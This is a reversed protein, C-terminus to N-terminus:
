FYWGLALSFEVNNTEISDGFVDMDFVHNRLDANVSFADMFLLRYGFGYNVTFRDDGAFETNGLGLVLYLANNLTMSESIFAEGPFLNYGLNIQYFTLKREDGSLLPAGGSLVEFSTKGAESEGVVLQAFYSENIHYAIKGGSVTNVGFDEISLMGIYASIEFDESDILSEDFEVREIQPQILGQEAEEDIEEVSQAYSSAM